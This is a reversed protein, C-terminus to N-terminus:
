QSNTSWSIFEKETESFSHGCNGFVFGEVNKRSLNNVSEKIRPIYM